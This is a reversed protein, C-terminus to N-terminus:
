NEVTFALTHSFLLVNFHMMNPMHYCFCTIVEALQSVDIEAGKIFYRVIESNTQQIALQLPTKGDKFLINNIKM